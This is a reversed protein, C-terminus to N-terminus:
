NAVGQVYGHSFPWPEMSPNRVQIAVDDLKLTDMASLGHSWQLNFGGRAIVLMIFGYGHSFPWPEMSPDELVRELVLLGTYGHSFPWPEM